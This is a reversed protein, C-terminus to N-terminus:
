PAGQGAGAAREAARAGAHLAAWGDEGLAAFLREQAAQWHPMAADHLSRGAATIEIRRARGRGPALTVLGRRQLPKLNRSLTTRDMGMAAALDTMSPGGAMRAATLLSFQTIKLGVPRLAEEYAQSVLRAAKKLRFAACGAAPANPDPPPLAM